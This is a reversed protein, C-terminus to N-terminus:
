LITATTISERSQSIQQPSAKEARVSKRAVETLLLASHQRPQQRRSSEMTEWHRHVVPLALIVTARSNGLPNYLEFMHALETSGSALGVMDFYALRQNKKM